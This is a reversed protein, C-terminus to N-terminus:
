GASPSRVETLYMIRSVAGRRALEAVTTLYENQSQFSAVGSLRELEERHNRLAALRGNANRFVSATRNETELVRLGVTELLRENWGIPVFQTYGHVSRRQLEDNSVAGTIVGADTFLFRGGPRLLTTVERFLAQRDRLHLVVDVALVADFAGLGSPLPDNLDAAHASFREQVGARHGAHLWGPHGLPQDLGVGSCGVTALLFTLPGCPGSGLDLLRSTASLGLRQADRRLEDAGVWSHQGIDEGYAELRLQRM